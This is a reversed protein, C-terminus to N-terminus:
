FYNNKLHTNQYINLGPQHPETSQTGAQSGFPRHNLEWDPCMDLNHSPDGTPPAHSVVVCQHKEGEREGERGKERFIFLYFIKKFLYEFGQCCALVSFCDYWLNHGTRNLRISWPQTRREEEWARYRISQPKCGNRVSPGTTSASGRHTLLSETTTSM